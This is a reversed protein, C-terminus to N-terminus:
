WHRYVGGAQRLSIVTRDVTAGAAELRDLIEPNQSAWFVRSSWFVVADPSGTVAFRVGSGAAALVSKITALEAYRAEWTPFSMPLFRLFRWNSRLRIGWSFFELRALPWTVQVTAAQAGGVFAAEPATDPVAIVRASESIQRRMGWAGAAGTGVALVGVIIGILVAQSV